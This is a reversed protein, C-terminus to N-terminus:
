AAVALRHNWSWRCRGLTHSATLVQDEVALGSVTVAGTPVANVNAVPGVAASTVNESFGQGDTYSAVVRILQGIDDATLVYNSGTAASVNVGGRQWQYSVVGLGDVDTLTHSATLTSGESAPGTIAVSGLPDDNVATIAATAPSTATEVFGGGDTFSGVVRIVTGVDADTLIYSATTAGSINVGNRQWQYSIPGMGDPDNLTSVATLTQDEAATGSISLGGTPDEDVNGVNVTVTQAASTNMGDQVTVALTYVASSEYDLNSNDIVSLAGTATNISFVGDDNGSTIAWGSFTTGADDDSATLTGPSVGNAAAESVAFVQGPTM